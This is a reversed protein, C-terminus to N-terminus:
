RPRFIGAPPEQQQVLVSRPSYKRWSSAWLPVAMIGVLKGGAFFDGAEGGAGQQFDFRHMEVGLRRERQGRTQGARGIDVAALQDRVGADARGQHIEQGDGHHAVCAKLRKVVDCAAFGCADRKASPHGLPQGQRHGIHAFLGFAVAAVGADFAHHRSPWRTSSTSSRVVSPPEFSDKTSAM